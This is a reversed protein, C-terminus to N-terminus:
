ASFIPKMFFVPNARNVSMTCLKLPLEQEDALRTIWGAPHRLNGQGRGDVLKNADKDQVWGRDVAYPTQNQVVWM